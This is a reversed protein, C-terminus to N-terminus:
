SGVMRIALPSSVTSVPLHCKQSGLLSLKAIKPCGHLKIRNISTPNMVSFYILMELELFYPFGFGREGAWLAHGPRARRGAQARYYALARGVRLRLGSPWRGVVLIAQARRYFQM